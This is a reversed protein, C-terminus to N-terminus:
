VRTGHCPWKCVGFARREQLPLVRPSRIERVYDRLTERAKSALEVIGRVDDSSPIEVRLYHIAQLHSGFQPFSHDIFNLAFPLELCDSLRFKVFMEFRNEFLDWDEIMGDKMMTTM